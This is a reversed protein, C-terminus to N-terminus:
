NVVLFDFVTTATAAANAFVTFTGSGVSVRPISTATTDAAAQNIIAFVSSTSAVTSNTIVTSAGAAAFAARGRPSNNTVNGPTGSSDTFSGAKLSGGAGALPAASRLAM